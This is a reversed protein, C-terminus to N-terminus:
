DGSSLQAVDKLLRPETVLKELSTFAKTNPDLWVRADTKLDEHLCEPFELSPLDQHVDQIHYLISTWKAKKMEGEESSSSVASWDLHNRIAKKWLGDECGKM